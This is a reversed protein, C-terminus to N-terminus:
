MRTTNSTTPAPTSEPSPSCLREPGTACPSHGSSARYDSINNSRESLMHNCLVWTSLEGPRAGFRQVGQRPPRPLLAQHSQQAGAGPGAGEPTRPAAGPGEAVAEALRAGRAAHRDPAGAGAGHPGCHGDAERRGYGLCWWGGNQVAQEQIDAISASFALL